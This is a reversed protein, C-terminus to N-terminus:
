QQFIRVNWWDKSASILPNLLFGLTWWADLESICGVQIEQTAHWHAPLTLPILYRINVLEELNGEFGFHKLMYWGHNPLDKKGRGTKEKRWGM